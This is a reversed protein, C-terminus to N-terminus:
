SAACWCLLFAFIQYQHSAKTNSPRQQSWSPWILRGWTTENHSDFGKKCFFPNFLFLAVLVFNMFQQTIIIYNGREEM